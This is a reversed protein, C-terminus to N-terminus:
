SQEQLSEGEKKELKKELEEIRKKMEAIQKASGESIEKWPVPNVEFKREEKNYSIEALTSEPNEALVIQMEATAMEKDTFLSLNESVIVWFKDKVENEIEM